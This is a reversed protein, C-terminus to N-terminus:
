INTKNDISAPKPLIEENVNPVNGPSMKNVSTGIKVNADIEPLQVSNLEEPKTIKDNQKKTKTKDVIYGILALVLIIAVILIYIYKDMLFKM